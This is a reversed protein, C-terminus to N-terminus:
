KIFGQKDEENGKLDKKKSKNLITKIQEVFIDSDKTTEWKYILSTLTGRDDESVLKLFEPNVYTDIVETLTEALQEFNNPNVM